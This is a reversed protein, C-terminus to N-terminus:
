VRSWELAETQPSTVPLNDKLSKFTCNKKEIESGKIASSFKFSIWVTEVIEEWIGLSVWKQM